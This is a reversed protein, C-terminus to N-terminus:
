KAVPDEVIERFCELDERLRDPEIQLEAELARAIDRPEYEVRLDIRTKDPGLQTLTVTGSNFRGGKSRWAVREGPADDTIEARWEIRKGCVDSVWRLQRGGIREVREIGEMFRPFEEFRTWRRYVLDAPVDVEISQESIM